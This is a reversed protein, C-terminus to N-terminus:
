SSKHIANVKEVMINIEEDTASFPSILNKVYIQKDKFSLNNWENIYKSNNLARNKYFEQNELKRWDNWELSGKGKDKNYETLIDYIQNSIKAIIPSLPVLENDPNLHFKAELLAKHLNLLDYYDCIEFITEKM